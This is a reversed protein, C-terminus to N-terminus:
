NLIYLNESYMEGTTRNRVVIYKIGDNPGGIWFGHSIIEIEDIDDDDIQNQHDMPSGQAAIM